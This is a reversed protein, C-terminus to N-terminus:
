WVACKKAPNMSSNVPCNFVRAFEESNSLTGIVRYPDVTHVDFLVTHLVAQPLEAVCWLQAFALFFLQESTFNVGPLIIQSPSREEVKKFAKYAAKMGGNDAINEGLTLKGNLKTDLITYNSYQEIMCQSNREFAERTQESWWQRLNGNADRKSGYHDFAHTIEHGMVMGIGGYNLAAPNQRSFLPTQLIGAPFYIHNANEKYFANVVHPSLEWQHRDQIILQRLSNLMSSESCHLGNEFYTKENLSEIHEFLRNEEDLDFINPPYGTSARMNDVKELAKLKDEDKMWTVSDFNEKFALKIEDIMQTVSEKSREDFRDHVFLRGIVMSFQETVDAICVQWRSGDLKYGLEVEKWEELARGVVIPMRNVTQWLFYWIVTNHLTRIGTENKLYEEILKCRARFFERDNIAIWQDDTIAYNLPKYLENILWKWDLVSCFKPLDALTILEYNREPDRDGREETRMAIEKEFKYVEDMASINEELVGLMRTYNKMFNRYATVPKKHPFVTENVYHEKQIGVSGEMIDIVFRSSNRQDNGVGIRCLPSAGFLRFSTLFLKTLDFQEVKLASGQDSRAAPSNSPLLIWGGFLHKVSEYLPTFGRANITSEDLCSNYFTQALKLGRSPPNEYKSIND